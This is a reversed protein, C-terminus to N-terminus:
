KPREEKGNRVVLALAAIAQELTEREEKMAKRREAHEDAMLKAERILNALELGREIKEDETLEVMEVTLSMQESDV